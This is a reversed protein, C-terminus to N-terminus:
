EAALSSGTIRPPLAPHYIRDDPVGLAELVDEVVTTSGLRAIDHADSAISLTAGYEYLLAVYDAYSSKLTEPFYDPLFNACANVEIAVGNGTAAQVLDRTMEKPVASMDTLWPALVGEYDKRGFWWPHVVVDVLPSAALKILLDTQRALVAERTAEAPDLWTGHVGAIALEFGMERAVQNSYPLAADLDLINLECGFYVEIPTDFAVLEDRIKVHDPLRDLTNLHDTIAISRLGLAEAKRIIAEVQMTANACGLYHTHIHYDRGWRM